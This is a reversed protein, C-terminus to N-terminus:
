SLIKIKCLEFLREYEARFLKNVIDIDSQPIVLESPKCEFRSSDVVSKLDGAGLHGRVDDGFEVASDVGFRTQWQLINPDFPIGWFTCVEEFSEHPNECFLEYVTFRVSNSVEKALRLVELAHGYAMSFYDLDGWGVKFWSNWARLPDRFLFIPLSRAVNSPDGFVDLKCDQETSHGITEKGVIFSRGDPPTRDFFTYDPGDLNRQGSKIQQYVTHVDPHGSMTQLFASSGSKCHSVLLRASSDLM